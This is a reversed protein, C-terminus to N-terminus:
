NMKGLNGKGFSKAGGKRQIIEFFRRHRGSPKTFIQLLYGENDRDVLIGLRKLPELDEDIHGVRDPLTDYYTTPIKLFEVGRNQLDTVTKVIDNTARRM